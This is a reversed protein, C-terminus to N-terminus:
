ARRNQGAMIRMADAQPVHGLIETLWTVASADGPIGARDRFSEAGAAISRENRAFPVEAGSIWRFMAKLLEVSRQHARFSEPIGVVQQPKRTIKNELEETNRFKPITFEIAM